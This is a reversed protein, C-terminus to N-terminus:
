SLSPSLLVLNKWMNAFKQLVQIGNQFDLILISHSDREMIIDRLCPFGEKGDEELFKLPTRNSINYLNDIKKRSIDYLFHVLGKL